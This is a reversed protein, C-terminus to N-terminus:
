ELSKKASKPLIIIIFTTPMRLSNVYILKYLSRYYNKFYLSIDDGHAHLYYETHPM